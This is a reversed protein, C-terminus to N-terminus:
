RKDDHSRRSSERDSRDSRDSMHDKARNELVNGTQPDVLLKVRAGSKDVAKVEVADHEREIKTIDRYGAASLKDSIQANSLESRSGANQVPNAAPTSAPAAPAAIASGALLSAGIALVAFLHSTRM